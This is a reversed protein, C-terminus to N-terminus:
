SQNEREKQNMPATDGLSTQIPQGNSEQKPAAQGAIPMPTELAEDPWTKDPPPPQDQTRQWTLYWDRSLCDGAKGM